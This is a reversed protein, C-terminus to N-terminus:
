DTPAPTEALLGAVDFLTQEAGPRAVLQVAIPRGDPHPSRPLSLAPYGIANVWSTFAGPSSSPTGDIPWAPEPVVPLVLVDLDTPWAASTHDRMATLAQQAAWLAGAPLAEGAAALEKMAQTLTERNLDPTTEVISAVGAASLDGWIRLMEDLPYPADVRRTYLGTAGLVRAAQEVREKVNADASVTGAHTFWGVRPSRPAAITPVWQSACDRADAGAVIAYTAAIDDLTRAILGVVQFGPVVAPFGGRRPIRGTTPRLGVTGTLAAPLRTSGGADTALALPVMGAAVAAASGGSSGGPTLRVDHPNRTTGFLDNSTTFSMAFEPTNTKGVIVSGAARLREVAIDDETPVFFQWARSGWSAPMGAVYLNDKVAIPIGDMPGRAANGGRRADSADAERLAMETAVYTFAHIDRDLADIRSLSEEVLARATVTGAALAASMEVLSMM